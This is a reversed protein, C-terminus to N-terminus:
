LPWYTNFHYIHDLTFVSCVFSDPIKVYRQVEKFIKKMLLLINDAPCMSTMSWENTSYWYFSSQKMAVSCVPLEILPYSYNRYVCQVCCQHVAYLTRCLTFLIFHWAIEADGHTKHQQGLFRKMFYPSCAETMDSKHKPCPISLATQFLGLLLTVLPYVAVFYSPLYSHLQGLSGHVEEEPLVSHFSLCLDLTLTIGCGGGRSSGVSENEKGEGVRLRENMWNWILSRMRECRTWMILSKTERCLKLFLEWKWRLGSHHM